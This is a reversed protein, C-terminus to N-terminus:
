IIAFCIPLSWTSAFPMTTSVVRSAATVMVRQIKRSLVNPHSYVLSFLVGNPWHKETLSLKGLICPTVLGGAGSSDNRPPAPPPIRFVGGATDKPVKWRQFTGGGAPDWLRYWPTFVHIRTALLPREALRLKEVVPQCTSEKLVWRELGVNEKRKASFLVHRQRYLLFPRGPSGLVTPEGEGPGGASREDAPLKGGDCAM